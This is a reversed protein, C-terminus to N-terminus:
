IDNIMKRYCRRRKVFEPKLPKWQSTRAYRAPVEQPVQIRVQVWDVEKEFGLAEMHRHYYEPNYITNMTGTLDFDEILMGEKDFDTTGMPGEITEMLEKRSKIEVVKIGSM